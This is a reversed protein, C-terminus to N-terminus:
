PADQRNEVLSKSVIAIGRIEIVPALTLWQCNIAFQLKVVVHKKHQGTFLM